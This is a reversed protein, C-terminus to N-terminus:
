IGHFFHLIKIHLIWVLGLGNRSNSPSTIDHVDGDSMAQMMAQVLMTTRMMVQMMM